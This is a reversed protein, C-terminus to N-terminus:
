WGFRNREDLEVQDGLQRAFREMSDDAAAEERPRDTLSDSLNEIADHESEAIEKKVAAIGRRLEHLFGTLIRAQEMEGRRVADEVAHQSERAMATGIATDLMLEAQIAYIEDRGAGRAEQFSEFDSAIKMLLAVGQALLDGVGKTGEPSLICERVWPDLTLSQEGMEIRVAGSDSGSYLECFTRTRELQMALIRERTSAHGSPSAKSDAPM